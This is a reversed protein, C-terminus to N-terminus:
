ANLTGILENLKNMLSDNDNTALPAVSTPKMAVPAGNVDLPSQFSFGGRNSNFAIRSGDGSIRIHFVAASGSHIELLLADADDARRISLLKGQVIVTSADETIVSNTLPHQM